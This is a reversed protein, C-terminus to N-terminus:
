FAAISMSPISCGPAAATATTAAAVQAHLVAHRSGSTTMAPCTIDRLVRSVLARAGPACKVESLIQKNSNERWAPDYNACVFM